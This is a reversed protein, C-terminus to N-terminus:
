HMKRHSTTTEGNRGGHGPTVKGARELAEGLIQELVESFTVVEGRKMMELRRATELIGYVKDSVRVLKTSGM